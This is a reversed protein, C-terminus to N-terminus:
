GKGKLLEKRRKEGKVVIFIRMGRPKPLPVSWGDDTVKVVEITM